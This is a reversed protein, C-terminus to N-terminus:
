MNKLTNCGSLMVSTTKYGTETLFKVSGPAANRLLLRNERKGKFVFAPPIYHGSASMCCAVSITQGKEASVAKSVNRKGTPAVTKPLKGPVTQVGTEDANFISHSPFKYKNQQDLVNKFYM